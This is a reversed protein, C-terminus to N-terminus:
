TPFITSGIIVTYIAALSLYTLPPNSFHAALGRASILRVTVSAALLGLCVAVLLPPMYVGSVHFDIPM